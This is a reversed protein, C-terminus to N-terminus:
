SLFVSAHQPLNTARAVLLVVDGEKGLGRVLLQQLGAHAEADRSTHRWSPTRSSRM